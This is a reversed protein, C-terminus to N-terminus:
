AITRAPSTHPSGSVTSPGSCVEAIVLEPAIVTDAGDRVAWAMPTDKEVVYWKLAVSADVIVTM